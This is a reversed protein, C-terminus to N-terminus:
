SRLSPTQLLGTTWFVDPSSELECWSPAATPDRGTAGGLLSPRTPLSSSRAPAPFGAKPEGGSRGASRPAVDLEADLHGSRSRPCAPNLEIGLWDRGLRQAAVTVTGAGVFPSLVLGHPTACRVRLKRESYRLCHLGAGSLHRAATAQRPEDPLNRLSRRPLRRDGADMCRRPKQRAPTWCPRQGGNLAGVPGAPPRGPEQRYTLAHVPMPKASGAASRSASPTLTFYYRPSRTFFYVTEQSRTLRDSVSSPM